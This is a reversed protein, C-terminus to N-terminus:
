SHERLILVAGLFISVTMEGYAFMEYGLAMNRGAFFSCLVMASLIGPEIKRM